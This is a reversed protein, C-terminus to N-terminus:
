ELGLRELIEKYSGYQTEKESPLGLTSWGDEDYNGEANVLGLYGPRLEAIDQFGAAVMVEAAELSRKGTKGVVLIKQDKKFLKEVVEVFRDNDRFHGSVTFFKFPVNLAGVPHGRKYEEPARIDLYVYGWGGM